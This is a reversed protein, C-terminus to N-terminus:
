GHRGGSRRGATAAVASREEDTLEVLDGLDWEDDAPSPTGPAAAAAGSPAPTVPVAGAALSSVTGPDFFLRLDLEYGAERVAAAVAISRISDGGIDFFRDDVGFDDHGVARAVAAHVAREAEGFPERRAAAGGFAVEPLASRDVKGNPLRPLRPHVAVRDPVMAPPLVRVAEGRLWTAADSGTAGTAGPRDAGDTVVHAVLRSPGGPDPQLVVAAERVGDRELLVREIEGLEVRVGRVKVQSDTRGVYELLGEHTRRVLDGTRYMREGPAGYPDAVFREATTGPRRHYGDALQVGALYLEGAVGFPVRRLRADLVYATVNRLPTGIPVRAPVVDGPAASWATAHVAVETPGYGNHFVADMVDHVDTVLGQRVPEGTVIVQRLGAPREAVAGLHETLMSPVFFATGAAHQTLLEHVHRPDRHGGPEAQVLTAGVALPWFIETVSVDFGTPTKQLVGEGPEVPFAEQMWRLQNLAAAHSVVVGKPRGTSGSTYLVYASAASPVPPPTPGDVVGDRDPVVVAPVGADRLREGLTDVTPEGQAVLVAAPGSDQVLFALREAPYSLDLPVYAAGAAMAGLMAAVMDGSRPVAIAVRDGPRVGADTLRRAIDDAWRVLAGFAVKGREDVLATASSRGAATARVRGHITEDPEGAVVPGRETRAVAAAGDAGLVDLDGVACVPDAAAGDLVRAVTHWVLDATPPDFLDSACEVRVDYATDTGHAGGDAADAELYVSLDFRAHEADGTVPRVDLGDMRVPRHPTDDLSLLVQFIPHITASRRPRILEVVREFPVGQHALAGRVVERSRELVEEFTSTATVPTRLVLTSVFMDVVDADATDRGAVPTGVVIDEGAGLRHLATAFAAHVVTFPTTGYRRALEALAHARGGDLRFRRSFGAFTAVAPRPRDTPLPLEDPVQHLATRWYQEARAVDDPRESEGEHRRVPGALAPATGRRRATYAAALDGALVRASWGDCVIHHTRLVLVATGGSRVLVVGLPPGATLDGGRLAAERALREVDGPACDQVELAAASRVLPDEPALERRVPRGSEESFTVRLAPHRLVVDHVAGQLADTDVTGTLRQTIAATYLSGGGLTRELYWMGAQARTLERPVPVVVADLVDGGSAAPRATEDIRALLDRPTGARFVDRGTLRVGLEANARAVVRLASLSHGGVAFFDTGPGVDARGLVEAFVDVLTRLRPDTADGDLLPEPVAPEGVLGRLARHDVKGRVTLPIREVVTVSGPVRHPPVTSRLHARVAEGDPGGPAVTLVVHPVGDVVLGAAGTVGAVGQADHELEALDVRFGRVKLQRDARRRFVLGGDHTWEVIDGTRYMRAGPVGAPDAVFRASTEAPEGLYGRALQPGAVYLEGIGGQAVPRLFADLVRVVTSALPAGLSRTARDALDPLPVVDQM